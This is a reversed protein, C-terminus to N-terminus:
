APGKRADLPLELNGLSKSSRLLQQYGLFQRRGLAAWGYEREVLQRAEIAIKAALGPESRLRTWARQFDEATEAHLYHRGDEALIGEIGIATSIVPNGMAMAEFIKLRTGSGSRLPVVLIYNQVERVLAPIELFGLYRIGQRALEACRPPDLDKGAVVFDCGQGKIQPWVSQLFFDLGICNQRNIFWGIYYIGRPPASLAKFSYADLDVGNELVEIQTGPRRAQLWDADARSMCIAVQYRPLHSLEERRIIMQKCFSVFKQRFGKKFARERQLVRSRFEHCILIAPCATKPLYRAIQLFDVQILEIGERAVIDLIAQTTDRHCLWQDLGFLNATFYLAKNIRSVHYPLKLFTVHPLLEKLQAIVAPKFPENTIVGVVLQVGLFGLQRLLNFVRTNGGSDLPYPVFPTLILVKM